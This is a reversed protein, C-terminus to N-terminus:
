PQTFAINRFWSDIDERYKGAADASVAAQVRFDWGDTQMYLEFHYKLDENSGTQYSLLYTPYTYQASLTEDLSIDINDAAIDQYAAITEKIAQMDAPPSPMREIALLLLGGDLSYTQAAAGAYNMQSDMLVANEPFNNVGIWLGANKIEDDSTIAPDNDPADYLASYLYVSRSAEDWNVEFGITEAVFGLPVMTRGNVIVPPADITVTVPTTEGKDGNYYNIIVNPDNIHMIMPEGESPLYVLVEQDEEVWEVKCGVAESVASLPVMTRGEMIIPPVDTFLKNGDMYISIEDTGYATVGGSLILFVALCLGLLKQPRKM